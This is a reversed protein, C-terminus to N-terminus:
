KLLHKYNSNRDCKWGLNTQTESHPSQRVNVGKSVILDFGGVTMEEGTIIGELNVITLVDDILGCKLKCDFDTNATMSPGGNVEILWPKLTSDIM